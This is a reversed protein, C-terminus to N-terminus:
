NKDRVCMNFFYLIAAVCYHTENYSKFYNEHILNHNKLRWLKM